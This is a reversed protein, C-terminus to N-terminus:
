PWRRREQKGRTECECGIPALEKVACFGQPASCVDTELATKFKITAIIVSLFGAVLTLDFGDHLLRQNLNRCPQGTMRRPHHVSLKWVAGTMTEFHHIQAFRARRDDSSVSVM